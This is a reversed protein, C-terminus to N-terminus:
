KFKNIRLTNERVFRKIATNFKDPIIGRDTTKTSPNGFEPTTFKRTKKHFKLGKIDNIVGESFDVDDQSISKFQFGIQIVSILSKTEQETLDYKEKLTATYDM